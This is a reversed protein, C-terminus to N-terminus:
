GAQEPLQGHGASGAYPVDAQRGSKRSVSEALQPYEYSDPKPVEM